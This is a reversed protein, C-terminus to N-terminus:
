KVTATATAQPVKLKELEINLDAIQKEKLISDKQLKSLKTNLKYVKHADKAAAEAYIDTSAAKGLDAVKNKMEAASDSAKKSSVSAADTAVKIVQTLGEMEMTQKELAKKIDNIQTSKDLIQGEVTLTQMKASTPTTAIKPSCATLLIAAIFLYGFNTNM